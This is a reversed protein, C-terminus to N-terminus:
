LGRENGVEEVDEIEEVFGRGFNPPLSRDESGNIGNGNVGRESYSSPLGTYQVMIKKM